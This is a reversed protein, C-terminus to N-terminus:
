RIQSEYNSKIRLQQGESLRIHKGREIVVAGVGFAAGVGAGVAAGVPGGVIAGVAAGTGTSAGIKISDDRISSKGVAAGENDVRRVNDGRVPMVEVLIANFNAWRSESLIIRDFSLVLESRRKIHGPKTIKEIRGEITAGAIEVPSLVKATFKDGIRNRETDIAQDLEIILETDKPIIIIPDDTTVYAVKKVSKTDTTQSYSQNDTSAQGTSNATIEQGPNPSPSSQNASTSAQSSTEPSSGGPMSVTPTEISVPRKALNIPAVSDFPKKDFGAAYGVEFGQRYGDKYDDLAGYESNFARDAQQYDSHQKPDKTKYDIADRYGAMYGDSYGTRYGRQLAPISNTQGFTLLSLFLFIGTIAAFNTLYSRIKM